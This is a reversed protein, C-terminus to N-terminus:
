GGVGSDGHAFQKAHTGVDGGVDTKAKGAQHAAAAADARVTVPPADCKVLPSAYAAKM